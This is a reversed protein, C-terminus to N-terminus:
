QSLMGLQDSSGRREVVKGNEFRGFQV